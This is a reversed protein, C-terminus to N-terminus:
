EGVVRTFGTRWVESLQGLPLDIETLGNGVRLSLADGGTVGILTIPAGALGALAHRVHDTYERFYSIVFRGPEEGFLIETASM